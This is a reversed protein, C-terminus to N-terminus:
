YIRVEKSIRKIESHPILRKGGQVKLSRILRHKVRYHVAQRTIGLIKGAETITYLPENILHNMDPM